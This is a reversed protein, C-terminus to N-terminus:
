RRVARARQRRRVTGRWGLRRLTDAIALATRIGREPDDAHAHPPLGTAALLSTGHNDVAIQNLQTSHREFDAQLALILEQVAHLDLRPALDPLDVFIATM